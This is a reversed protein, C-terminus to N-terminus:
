ASEGEDLNDGRAHAAQVAAMRGRIRERDAASYTEIREPEQAYDVATHWPGRTFTYDYPLGFDFIFSDDDLLPLKIAPIPVDVMFGYVRVPGEGPTPRPDSVAIYYPYSDADQPYSPLGWIPSPTEHLFDIEILTLGGLLLESRKVSYSAEHAGGPKNSPSLLEIQATARGWIADGSQRYIVVADVTNDPALTMEVTAEWTPVAASGGTVAASREGQQYISVDPIPRRRVAFGGDVESLVQLSQENVAIYGAPLQANLVEMMQAIYHNHFGRWSSPRADSGPTQLRSNLHANIGRYQNKRSHIPM